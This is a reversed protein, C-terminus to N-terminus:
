GSPGLSRPFKTPTGTAATMRNPYYIFSRDVDLQVQAEDKHPPLDEWRPLSSNTAPDDSRPSKEDQAESTDIRTDDNDSDSPGLLIPGLTVVHSYVNPQVSRLQCLPPECALRRLSDELLGGKSEALQRLRSSDRRNCADRIEGAKPNEVSPTEVSSVTNHQDEHQQM